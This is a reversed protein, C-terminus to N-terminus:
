KSLGFDVRLNKISPKLSANVWYNIDVRYGLLVLYEELAKALSIPFKDSPFEFCCHLFSVHSTSDKKASKKASEIVGKKITEMLDSCDKCRTLKKTTM